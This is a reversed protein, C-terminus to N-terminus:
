RAGRFPRRRLKVHLAKGRVAALAVIGPVIWMVVTALFAILTSRQGTTWAGLDIADNRHVIAFTDYTRPRLSVWGAKPALRPLLQQGGAELFNIIAQIKPAM